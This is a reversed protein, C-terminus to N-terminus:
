RRELVRQAAVLAGPDSDIADACAILDPEHSELFALVAALVVPEGARARLDAPALGTIDILRRARAPDAVTWGLAALALAAARDSAAQDITVAADM